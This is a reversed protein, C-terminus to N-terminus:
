QQALLQRYLRTSEGSPRLGLREDLTEALQRYRDVIAQRSGLLSAAEMALCWGRENLADREILREAVALAGGGDGQDLRSRACRELLELQVAQLRRREGDAWPYDVGFLPEEGALALAREVAALPWEACARLEDLEDADVRLSRRELRYSDQERVLRDGVLRRAQRTAKWLRQRTKQLEEGPWLAECLEELTAPARKIALYALLGRTARERGVRGDSGVRQRGLLALPVRDIGAGVDDPSTGGVPVAAAEDGNVRPRRFLELLPGPSVTGRAPQARRPRPLWAPREQDVRELRRPPSIALWGLRACALLLLLWLVVAGSERVLEIGTPRLPRWLVVPLVPRLLALLLVGVAAVLALLLRAWGPIAARGVVKEDKSSV